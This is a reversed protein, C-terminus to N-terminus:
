GDGLAKMIIALATTVLRKIILIMASTSLCKAIAWVQQRPLLSKVFSASSAKQQNPATHGSKAFNRRKPCCKKAM